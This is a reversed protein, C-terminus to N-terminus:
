VFARVLAGLLVWGQRDLSRASRLAKRRLRVSLAPSSTPCGDPRRDASIEVHHSCRYHRCYILVDRVDSARMEGFTIKQPYTTVTETVSEEVGTMLWKRDLLRNLHDTREQASKRTRVTWRRSGRRREHDELRRQPPPPPPPFESAPPHGILEDLTTEESATAPPQEVAALLARGEDTIRWGGPERAILKRGFIDLDPAREALRKM